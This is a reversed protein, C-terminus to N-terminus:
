SRRLRITMIIVTMVMSGILVVVVAGDVAGKGDVDEVVFMDRIDVVAFGDYDIGDM